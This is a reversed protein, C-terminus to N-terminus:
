PQLSKMFLAQIDEAPLPRSFYYGQGIECGHKMLFRVQAEEEIGEAIMSFGLSHGMVIIAKVISGQNPHAIIDDVFSKDIKLHDIPLHKLYSLSSYGKGFDDISLELGIEKIENLVVMSRDINQMISETIELELYCPNVGAEDLIQKLDHIFDEDEMQRVSVNVAVKVPGMGTREWEIHQRCAERIVWKGLPIILGTEEALPIFECPPIIGLEPDRWRLLAEVGIMRGSGVEVQPQYHLALQEQALARRLATELQIKRFAVGDLMSTYFQYKNGGRDKALYMATDAHKILAEQDEGDAPYLSIGISTTVFFEEEGLLIPHAFAHIIRRAMEAAKDKGTKELLIVFEDGGQRSVFGTQGVTSQLVATAKKLLLDGITHGKTDNIRKFRDLDLFMVSLEQHVNKELLSNLKRRFMNRNPLGTLSDYFALHQIKKEAKKRETIDRGVVQRARRGEYLIPMTSIEIDIREGDMRQVSVEFRNGSTKTKIAKKVVETMSLLSEPTIFTHVHRGIVERPHVAAILSSGAGNIYAIQGHTVVAILDPSMEVLSRYRDESEKRDTIDFLVSTFEVFNGKEDLTPIGRDQIWRVEGDPRIIRYISTVPKGEKFFSERDRVHHLDAPYIVKKWLDHDQYFAEWSHGYLKEIGPTILLTNSKMDHFWIAVDLTEFIHELKGDSDKLAKSSKKMEQLLLIFSVLFGATSIFRTIRFFSRHGSLLMNGIEGSAELIVFLLATIFLKWRITQRRRLLRKM